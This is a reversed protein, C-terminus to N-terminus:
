RRWERVALAIRLVLLCITLGAVGLALAANLDGIGLWTAGAAGAVTAAADSKSM